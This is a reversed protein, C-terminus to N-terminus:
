AEKEAIESIKMPKNDKYEKALSLLAKIAYKTKKQLM